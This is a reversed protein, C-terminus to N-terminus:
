QMIAGSRHVKDPTRWVEGVPAPPDPDDRPALPADEPVVADGAAARAGPAAGDGSM